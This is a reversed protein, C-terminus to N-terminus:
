NNDDSSKLLLDHAITMGGGYKNKNKKTNNNSNDGTGDAAIPIIGIVVNKTNASTTTAALSSAVKLDTPSMPATTMSDNNDCNIGGTNKVNAAAATTTAMSSAGKLDTPPLPMTTMSNGM